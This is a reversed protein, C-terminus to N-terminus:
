LQKQKFNMLSSTRTLMEQKNEKVNKAIDQIRERSSQRLLDRVKEVNIIKQSPKKKLAPETNQRSDTHCYEATAQNSITIHQHNPEEDGDTRLIKVPGTRQLKKGKLQETGDSM